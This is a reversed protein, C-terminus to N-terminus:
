FAVLAPSSNRLTHYVANMNQFINMKKKALFTNKSKFNKDIFILFQKKKKIKQKIQLKLSKFTKEKIQNSTKM